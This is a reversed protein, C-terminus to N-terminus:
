SALAKQLADAGRVNLYERRYLDEIKDTMVSLSFLREVRARGAEGMRRRAFADRALQAIAGALAGTDKPLVLLGTEGEVIM